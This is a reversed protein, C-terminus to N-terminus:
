PEGQHHVVYSTSEILKQELLSDLVQLIEEQAPIIRMHRPGVVHDWVERLLRKEKDTM